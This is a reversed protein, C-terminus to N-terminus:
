EPMAMPIPYADNILITSHRTSLTSNKKLVNTCSTTDNRVNESLRCFHPVGAKGRMWSVSHSHRMLGDYDACVTYRM